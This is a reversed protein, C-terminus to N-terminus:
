NFKVKYQCSHDTKTHYSHHLLKCPVSQGYKTSRVTESIILNSRINNLEFTGKILKSKLGIKNTNEKTLLIKDAWHFYSSVLSNNSGTIHDNIIFENDGLIFKREWFIKEKLRSFGNTSISIITKDMRKKSNISNSFQSYEYPYKHPSRPIVGFNDIEITNHANAFIEIKNNYNNRGVDIIVEQNDVFLVFHGFDQHHHGV